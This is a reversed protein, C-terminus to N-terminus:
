NINNLKIKKKKLEFDKLNNKFVTNIAANKNPSNRLTKSQMIKNPPFVGSKEDGYMETYYRGMASIQNFYKDVNYDKKKSRHTKTYNSLDNKYEENNLVGDFCSSATINVRIKKKKDRDSDNFNSNFIDKSLYNQVYVKKKLPKNRIIKQNQLTNFLDDKTKELSAQTKRNKSPNSSKNLKSETKLNFIDSDHYRKFVTRKRLEIYDM